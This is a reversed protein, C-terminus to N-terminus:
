TPSSDNVTRVYSLSYNFGNVTVVYPLSYNFRLLDIPITIIKFSDNYRDYYHNIFDQNM